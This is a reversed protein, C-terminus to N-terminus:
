LFGWKRRSWSWWGTFTQRPLGRSQFTRAKMKLLVLDKADVDRLTHQKGKELILDKLEHITANASVTVQFTVSDHKILCWLKRPPESPPKRLLSTMTDAGVPAPWEISVHLPAAFPWSFASQLCEISGVELGKLDHGVTLFGSESFCTWEFVATGTMTMNSSVAVASWISCYTFSILVLPAHSSSGQRQPILAGINFGCTAIDTKAIVRHHFHTMGTTPGLGHWVNKTYPKAAERVSASNTFNWDNAPWPIILYM